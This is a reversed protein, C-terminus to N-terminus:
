QNCDFDISITIEHTEAALLNSSIGANITCYYSKEAYTTVRYLTLLIINALVQMTADYPYFYIQQTFVICSYKSLKATFCELNEFIALQANIQSIRMKM